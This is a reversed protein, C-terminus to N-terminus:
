ATAHEERQQDLLAMAEAVADYNSQSKDIQSAREATMSRGTVYQSHYKEADKLLLSVSHMAGVVYKDNVSLYHAAVKHAVEIGVRGIFKSIQGAVTANWVPWAGHRRQYCIAYNHWTKYSKTDPGPYRLNAPFEFRKGHAEIVMAQKTVQVVGAAGATPKSIKLDTEQEVDTPQQVDNKVQHPNAPLPKAPTPKAPAPFGTERPAANYGGEPLECVTYAMGQFAGGEGRAVDTKLYGAQELEKLIVRVADRGSGKGISDKTQNILHKVSVEWHDPKGLLFVLLGRAAWSLRLDESIRKDLTYWNSDPRPARIISM